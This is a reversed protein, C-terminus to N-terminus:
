RIAEIIDKLKKSIKKISYNEIVYKRGRKGMDKIEQGNELLINIGNKFSNCDNYLLGGSSNKIHDVIVRSGDSALVPIKQAMAELPV